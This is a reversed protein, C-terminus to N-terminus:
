GLGGAKQKCRDAEGRALRNGEELGRNSEKWRDIEVRLRRIRGDRYEEVQETEKRGDVELGELYRRLLERQRVAVQYEGQV